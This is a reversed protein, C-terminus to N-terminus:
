CGFKGNHGCAEVIVNKFLLVFSVFSFGFLSFGVSILQFSCISPIIYVDPFGSFMVEPLDRKTHRGVKLRCEQEKHM